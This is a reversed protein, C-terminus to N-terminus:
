ASRPGRDRELQHVYERYNKEGLWAWAREAARQEARKWRQTFLAATIPVRNEQAETSKGRYVSVGAGAIATSFHVGWNLMTLEHIEEVTPYHTAIEWDGDAAWWRWKWGPRGTRLDEPLVDRISM